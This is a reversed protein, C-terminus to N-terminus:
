NASPFRNLKRPFIKPLTASSGACFSLAFAGRWVRRCKLIKTARSRFKTVSGFDSAAGLYGPMLFDFISWLDLVSNELPTGTLVFRHRARVAKVAQANQTQRNKIHQAEDLVVIDFEFDRYAQADRRILAYSTVIVDAQPIQNFLAHRRAGHLALVRLEPAFKRAEECWNFVLSTPCVVLAPAVRQGIPNAISTLAPGQDIPLERPTNQNTSSRATERRSRIFALMQLTKGLGMEDALIGGFHNQALFHLWAVGHKQYPRLVQELPGLPPLELKANGSQQAARERWAAPAEMQWGAKDRL